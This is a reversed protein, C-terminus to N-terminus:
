EIAKLSENMDIGVIKRRLLLTVLFTFAFVIVPAALWMFWSVGGISGMGLIHFLLTMILTSLPYGFLIGVATDIYIERYIYGSVEKNHYGLVMLTALERNRESVNINTLTYVVVATLLGAFVVVVLAIGMVSPSNVGGFLCIDLLALGALVLATSFAVAIVTMFFRSKYRLVNRVTSKYKFSLRKWLFPIKEIVVKRGAKPPKPRLLEAPKEASMKAGALVTAVLTSAVIVSYVVLFFVLAVHSSVPPMAFSYNFVYYIFYALGLGVFYAGVGGIGTGIMAFLVYKFIIKAPSYGLTKLCAVQPREEEMLRTMTSLVVLSTVFLFAVMLVWGIGTVKDAYSKLSVFSYNDFLTIVKVTPNRDVDTFSSLLRDARRGIESRYGDSLADFLSRDKMAIYADGTALLPADYADPIFPNADKVTPIVDLSLYLIDDVTILRNAGNIDTPVETDEPNLYSPEGDKAFTLPSLIIGSVTVSRPSLAGLLASTTPDLGDGDQEALQSLIEKFDLEVADGTRYGKIKNDACEAYAQAADTPATGETLKPINVTWHDFDLFYLRTLRRNEDQASPLYVDVSMGFNVNDEGYEQSLANIEEKTFGNEATSKVIFDSVNASVYYDTMSYGIKDSSSGLGSVFGVAVLIMFVVSLLRTIHKEFTRLLTKLYTKM